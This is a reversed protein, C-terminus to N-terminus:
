TNGAGNVLAYAADPDHCHKLAELREENDFVESLQRLSELHSEGDVSAISFVLSVPDNESGFRVPQRLLLLATDDRLVNPSPAAHALAIGPAIVVYPGLQNILDVMSDVFAPKIAGSDVLLQGSLRVAEEWGAASNQAAINDRAIVDSM